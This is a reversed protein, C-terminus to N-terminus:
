KKLFIFSLVPHSAMDRAMKLNLVNMDMLTWYIKSCSGKWNPRGSFRSLRVVYIPRRSEIM